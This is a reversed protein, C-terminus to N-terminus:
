KPRWLKRCCHTACNWTSFVVKKKQKLNTEEYNWEHTTHVLQNNGTWWRRQWGGCEKGKTDEPSWETKYSWQLVRRLPLIHQEHLSFLQYKESLEWKVLLINIICKLLTLHNSDQISVCQSVFRSGGSSQTLEVSSCYETRGTSRGTKTDWEQLLHRDKIRSSSPYADMWTQLVM